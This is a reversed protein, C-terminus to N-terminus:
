LDLWGGGMSVCRGGVRVATIGAGAQDVEALPQSDRRDDGVVRVVRVLDLGLGM